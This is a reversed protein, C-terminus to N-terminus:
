FNFVFSTIQTFDSKKIGIPPRSDVDWSTKFKLFLSKFIHLKLELQSSQIYDSFDDSLPQYYITASFTSKESFGVAYTLYTNLRTNDENSNLASNNYVINEYFGGLGFYGNGIEQSSFIKYRLGGGGLVRSSIQRFKDSQIQVFLEYILNQNDALTHIYRLHSFLKSTDEVNNSKGYEGSIEGWVVYNIAEDYTIRASAKYNDKDTNGRKTELGVEAKASIGAKVGIEVPTITVLAVLYQTTILTILLLKKM